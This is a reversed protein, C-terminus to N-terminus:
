KASATKQDKKPIHVIVSDNKKDVTMKAADVPGPLTVLQEYENLMETETGPQNGNKANSKTTQESGANVSLIGDKVNVKVNSLDRKPLYFTAVYQDGRDQVTASADFKPGAFLSKDTQEMSNVSDRFLDDMQQQIKQMQNTFQNEWNQTSNANSGNGPEAASPNTNAQNTSPQPQTATTDQAPTAGLCSLGTLSMSAALVGATVIGFPNSKM